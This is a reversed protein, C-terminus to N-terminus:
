ICVGKKGQEMRNRNKHWKRQKQLPKNLHLM